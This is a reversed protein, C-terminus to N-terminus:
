QGTSKWQNTHCGLERANMADTSKPFSTVTELNVSKRSRLVSMLVSLQTERKAQTLVQEVQVPVHLCLNNLEFVM